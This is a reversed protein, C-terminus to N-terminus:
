NIITSNHSGCRKIIYILTGKLLNHSVLFHLNQLSTLNMDNQPYTNKEKLVYEYALPNYFHM